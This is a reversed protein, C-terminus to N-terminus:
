SMKSSREKLIPDSYSEALEFAQDQISGISRRNSQILPSVTRTFRRPFRLNTDIQAMELSPFPFSERRGLVQSTSDSGRSMSACAGCLIAKFSKEFNIGTTISLSLALM